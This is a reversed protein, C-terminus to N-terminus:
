HETDEHHTEFRKTMILADEDPNRYFRRREGELRFGFTEYLRIAAANSRRVELSVFSLKKQRALRLVRGILQSAAGQRRYEAAVAINAIYGEDLVTSIGIYGVPVGGSKATYFVTQAALSERFANESWPESFCERELAAAAPIDDDTMEGLTFPTFVASDLLIDVAHFIEDRCRRYVGIDGGYPDSIGIGLLMLRSRDIGAAALAALHGPSLCIIRDASADDPTFQRSVHASLEIGCERLALVSNRSAPSGDAALGRSQVELGPIKQERLYAAAMPSRCTNGTCVFLVRM